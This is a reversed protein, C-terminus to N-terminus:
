YFFKTKNEMYSVEAFRVLRKKRRVFSPVQINTLVGLWEEEVFRPKSNLINKRYTVSKSKEYVKSVIFFVLEWFNLYYIIEM